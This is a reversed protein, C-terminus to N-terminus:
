KCNGKHRREFGPAVLALRRAVIEAPGDGARAVYVAVAVRVHDDARTVVVVLGAGRALRVHVVARRAAERRRRVPAVITLRPAVLEAEADGRRTVHVAVAVRVHDDAREVVVTSAAVRALCVHVVPARAAERCRRVPADLALRLVVMEALTDCRRTVHVAVAVRVHDDARTVVVVLGAGRALRINVVPARAAEGCRRVPAVQALAGLVVKAAADGRRTVHVTIAIRVHDDARVAVVTAATTRALRVDIVATRAAERRRRVPADLALLRVVREAVTDGARAVHVAVAVHIHDDARVAVVVGAAARALRVDVVAARAAERCRRVPAVM